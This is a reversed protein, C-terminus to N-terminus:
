KGSVYNRKSFSTEIVYMALNAAQWLESNDLELLTGNRISNEYVCTFQVM